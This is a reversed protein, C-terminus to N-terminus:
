KRSKGIYIGRFNVEEHKECTVTTRKKEEPTLQSLYDCADCDTTTTMNDM